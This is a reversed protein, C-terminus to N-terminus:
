FSLINQNLIKTRCIISSSLRQRLLELFVFLYVWYCCCGCLLFNSFFSFIISINYFCNVCLQVFILFTFYEVLALFDSTYSFYIFSFSYTSMGCFMNINWTCMLLCLLLATHILTNIKEMGKENTPRYKLHVSVCFYYLTDLTVTKFHEFLM